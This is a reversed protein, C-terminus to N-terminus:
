GPGAHAGATGPTVGESRSVESASGRAEPTPSEGSPDRRTVDTAVTAGSPVFNREARHCSSGAPAAGGRRSVREALPSVPAAKRGSPETTNVEARGSGSALFPSSRSS